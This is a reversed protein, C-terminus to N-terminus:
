GRDRSRLLLLLSGRRAEVNGCYKKFFLFSFFSFFFFFFLFFFFL